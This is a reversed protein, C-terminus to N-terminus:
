ILKELIEWNKANALDFLDPRIKTYNATGTVIYKADENSLEKLNNILEELSEETVSDCGTLDINTNWDVPVIINVLKPNNVLYNYNESIFNTTTFTIDTLNPNNAFCEEGLECGENEIDIVINELNVCNYIAQTGIELCKHPAKWQTIDINDKLFYDPIVTLEDYWDHKSYTGTVGAITVGKKVNSENLNEIPNQIISSFGDYGSPVVTKGDYIPDFTLPRVDISAVYNGTVGLVNVNNKIVDPTIGTIPNITIGTIQVSEDIPITRSTTGTINISLPQKDLTGIYTGIVGYINKGLKINAPILDPETPIIVKSLGNYPEDATIINGLALPIVTKEQLNLTVGGSKRIYLDYYGSM